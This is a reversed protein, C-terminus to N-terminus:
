MDRAATFFLAIAVSIPVLLMGWLFLIWPFLVWPSFSVLTQGVELLPWM